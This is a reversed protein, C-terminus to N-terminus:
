SSSSTRTRIRASKRSFWALITSLVTRRGVFPIAEFWLESVKYNEEIALWSCQRRVLFLCPSKRPSAERLIRNDTTEATTQSGPYGIVVSNSYNALCHSHKQGISCPKSHNTFLDMYWGPGGGAYLNERATSLWTARPFIWPLFEDFEGSFLQTQKRLWRSLSICCTKKLTYRMIILLILLIISKEFQLLSGSFYCVCIKFCKLSIQFDSSSSQTWGQGVFYFVCANAPANAQPKRAYKLGAVLKPGKLLNAFPSIVKYLKCLWRLLLLLHLLCCPPM